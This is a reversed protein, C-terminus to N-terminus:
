VTPACEALASKQQQTGHVGVGFSIDELSGSFWIAARLQGDLSFWARPLCHLGRPAVVTALLLKARCNINGIGCFRCSVAM